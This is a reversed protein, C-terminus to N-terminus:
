FPPISKHSNGQPSQTILQLPAGLTARARYPKRCFMDIILAHVIYVCLDAHIRMGASGPKDFRAIRSYSLIPLMKRARWRRRFDLRAQIFVKRKEVYFGTGSHVGCM